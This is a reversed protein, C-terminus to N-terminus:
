KIISTNESHAMDILEAVKEEDCNLAAKLLEDSLKLSDAVESWGMVKITSAFQESIEYNPISVEKTYFVYTLYGLHVLLAFIDDASWLTTM